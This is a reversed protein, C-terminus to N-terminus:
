KSTVNFRVKKKIKLAEERNKLFFEKFQNFEFNFPISIYGPMQEVSYSTSIYIRLLARPEVM